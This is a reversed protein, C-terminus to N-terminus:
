VEEHETEVKVGLYFPHGRNIGGALHSQIWLPETLLAKRQAHHTHTQRHSHTHTHANKQHPGHLDAPSYFPFLSLSLTQIKAWLLAQCSLFCTPSLTNEGRRMHVIPEKIQAQTAFRVRSGQVKPTDQLGGGMENYLFDELLPITSEEPRGGEVLTMPTMPGKSCGSSKCPPRGTWAAARQSGAAGSSQMQIPGQCPSSILHIISFTSRKIPREPTEPHTNTTRGIEWTHSFGALAPKDWALTRPLVAM